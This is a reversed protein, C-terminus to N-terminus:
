MPAVAKFGVADKNYRMEYISWGITALSVIAPIGALSLIITRV